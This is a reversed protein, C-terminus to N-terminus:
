SQMGQPPIIEPLTREALSRLECLTHILLAGTTGTLGIKGTKIASYSQIAIDVLRRQEDAFQNLRRHLTEAQDYISIQRASGFATVADAIANDLCRNLTRFEDITVPAKQEAALETVAQCIDGYDHVVQDVTYGSHLLEVGRLAAARGIATSAPAPEPEPASDVTTLQERCLTNVLQQLFLPVGHDDPAPIQPSRNAVKGRCRNILENRNSTLFDYLM